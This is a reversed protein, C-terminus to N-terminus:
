RCSSYLGERSEHIGTVINITVSEEPELTLRHCIAVIPDLVSGESNSLAALKRMASPDRPTNGRGVFRARDTEYSLDEITAGHVAMMHFMWPNNEGQSRARRHCLIAGQEKLLETQVFLNSFATHMMDAIPSAMVVEAYSTVDMSRRRNSRNTIKIRRMEIDDEPSVVVETFTDFDGDRRRFEAKSESFVCEFVRQYKWLLNILIPSFDGTERDRVYCFTGWNDRTSDERFRTLALDRWRSYSGGSATIMVHYRGNSLLQL